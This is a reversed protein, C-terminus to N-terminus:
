GGGQASTSSRTTWSTRLRLANLVVLLSSASMGIGAILPTVMGAFALPLVVGNYALAWALNQRMVSRARLALAVADAFAAPSDSLLVADAKIQALDSGGALAVSVDAQALVPADNVGDGIMAVCAGTRQLDRVYALKGAPTAGGRVQDIGLEAATRLAVGPADGSLLHVRKGMRKLSAVARRSEPRLADGLRFAALWGLEDGLWAVTDTCHLWALPATRGHLPAVYAASGIRYRRGSIVAEVGGGHVSSFAAANPLTMGAAANLLARAVPHESGQEIAAALAICEERARGGMIRVELLALRGQTLTGTKDFVCDTARALAEIAHGRAVVLGRGAMEGIAVTMAVPTALSLACPCTVILVSVAVWLARSPDIWLWAAGAALACLLIAVVFVSAARAAAEVWRPREALAREAMRTISSLVTDAGVRTIRMILASGANVAGGTLAAGAKHSVARSEGTLLAENVTAFGSELEGDAPIAEGPRVLVRDGPVLLAVPVTATDNGGAPADAFRHATEPILRALRQLSRGASQRALLELYRGGLLLFVFMAVSDFYVPGPAVVTSWTSAGFAVAIGLAVPVDMGPSKARLDRWAGTFFPAASYLMVPLTLILGAWRMLQEIDASMSGADSLYVPVAYMMVQMMGFGAVFLRWLADRREGKEILELRGQEYPWARYGVARVATLLVSLRTEESNWVIRARNNAHIVQARKVGPMGSLTQEVLWACAVCRMGELLLEAERWTGNADGAAVAEGMGLSARVNRVFRSQVMPDDYLGLDDGADDPLEGPKALDADRLRDYGQLGRDLIAQAIAECGPCCVPQWEGDVRLGFSCESPVPLGCHFCAPARGEATDNATTSTSFM